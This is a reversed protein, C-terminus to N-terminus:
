RMVGAPFVARRSAAIAARCLPNISIEDGCANPCRCISATAQDMRQRAMGRGTALRVRLKAPNDARCM